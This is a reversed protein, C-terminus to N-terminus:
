RVPCTSVEVGSHLSCACRLRTFTNDSPSRRATEVAPTVTRTRHPPSLDLTSQSVGSRLTPVKGTAGTAGTGRGPGVNPPSEQDKEMGTTLGMPPQLSHDIPLPSRRLLSCPLLNAYRAAYLRLVGNKQFISKM